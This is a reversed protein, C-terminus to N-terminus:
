SVGPRLNFIYDLGDDSVTWSEALVGVIEEGDVKVLGEYVYGAATRANDSSANAPDLQFDAAPLNPAAESPASEIPTATSGGSACASLLLGSILLSNFYIKKYKM